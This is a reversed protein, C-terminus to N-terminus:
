RQYMLIARVVEAQVLWDDDKTLFDTGAVSLSFPATDICPPPASDASDGEYTCVTETASDSYFAGKTVPDERNDSLLVPLEPSNSVFECGEM